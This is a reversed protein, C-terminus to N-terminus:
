RWYLALLETDDVFSITIFVNDKFFKLNFLKQICYVLAKFNTELSKQIFIGGQPHAFITSPQQNITTLKIFIGGQQHAFLNNKM